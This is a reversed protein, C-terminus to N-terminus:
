LRKNPLFLYFHWWVPCSDIKKKNNAIEDVEQNSKKKRDQSAHKKADLGVM